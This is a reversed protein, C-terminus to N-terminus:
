EVVIRLSKITEGSEDQTELQYSGPRLSLMPRHSGPVLLIRDAPISDQSESSDRAQVLLRGSKAQIENPIDIMRRRSDAALWNPRGNTIASQPHFVQVDVFGKFPGGVFFRREANKAVMPGKFGAHMKDLSTIQDITLPDIGTAKKLRAALWLIEKDSSQKPEEIAHDLGVHVLVRAHPDKRFLRDVLNQCQAKERGNIADVPDNTSEIEEVEYNIPIFGIKMADRILEGFQPENSYMGTATVPYGRALLEDSPEALTEFAYHTFGIRKLQVAVRAVFNRHEPADHAENIIVIQRGNAESVIADVADELAYDVPLQTTYNSAAAPRLRRAKEYEGVFPYIQGLFQSAFQEKEALPELITIAQLLKGEGVAKMAANFDRPTEQAMLYNAWFSCILVLSTVPKTM